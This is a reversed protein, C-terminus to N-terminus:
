PILQFTSRRNAQHQSESCEECLCNVAPFEHGFGRFEIRSFDVGARILWEAAAQARRESLVANYELGGRCDTHSGILVKSGPNLNMMSLLLKLPQVADERIEWKDFDYYLERLVFERNYVLPVMEYVLPLLLTSDAKLGDPRSPTQFRIERKLYGRRGIVFKYEEGPLLKLKFPPSTRKFMRFGSAPDVIEISDLGNDRDRLERGHEVLQIEAFVDFAFNSQEEKPLGPRERVAIEYVRDLGNSGRNSSFQAKLVVRDEKSTDMQTLFLFDDAESNIPFKLNHPPIWDNSYAQHSKFIDLGGMGPHGDSSFYLSDGHWVPFVENNPTNLPRGLNEPKSWVGESKISRYLDFGGLGDPFDASFILVSDGSKVAPHMCNVPEETLDIIEPVSWGGGERTSSYIRCYFEDGQVEGCYTFYLKNQEPLYSFAGFPHLEMKKDLELPKVSGNEMEVLLSHPRNTWGFRNDKPNDDRNWELVGIWSDETLRLFGYQSGELGPFELEKLDYVYSGPVNKWEVMLKCVNIERRMEQKRGSEDGYLTFASAAADYEGNMKLSHAYELLAPLGYNDEYARHFWRLAQAYDGNFKACKGLQYALRAKEEQTSLNLYETQYLAAARAYHKLEFAQDGTRLKYQPSCAAIFLCMTLSLTCFKCLM